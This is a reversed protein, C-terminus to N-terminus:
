RPSSTLRCRYKVPPAGSASSIAASAATRRSPGAVRVASRSRVPRPWRLSAWSSARSSCIPTRTTSPLLRRTGGCAGGGISAASSASAAASRCRLTCRERMSMIRAYASLSDQRM